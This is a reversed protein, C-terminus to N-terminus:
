AQSAMEDIDMPDGKSPERRLTIAEVACVSECVGCGMCLTENVIARDSQEDLSIADFPCAEVCEECANCDADIEAVYGSSALIPVAGRTTNWAKMGGCCCSCCSCIANLREGVAKEFYACHVFGREHAVDLIRLAEDQSIMRAMPNQAVIFSAHPDGVFLCLEQDKPFCQSDSFLRCTCPAAAIAGPTEILLQRAIKFPMVKDSPTIDIDVDLTLLKRVDEKKMVKGHYLSTDHSLAGEAIAQCLMQLMEAIGEDLEEDPPRADVGQLKLSYYYFHKTYKLYLYGAFFLSKDKLPFSDYFARTEERVM